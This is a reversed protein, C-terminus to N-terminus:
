ECNMGRLRLQKCLKDLLVDNDEGGVFYQGRELAAMAKPMAYIDIDYSRLDGELFDDWKSTFGPRRSFVKDFQSLWVKFENNVRELKPFLRRLPTALFHVEGATWLVGRKLYPPFLNVLPSKKHDITGDQSYVLSGIASFYVIISSENPVVQPLFSLNSFWNVVGKAEDEIALFRHITGM